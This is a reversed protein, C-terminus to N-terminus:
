IEFFKRYILLLSYLDAKSIVEFPSHMSAVAVGIDVTEFGMNGMFEAVTGGGGADVAGLEAAQFPASSQELVGTIFSMMEASADNAGSKGRAGTYKCLVAGRGLFASNQKDFASAFRADYAAAVDGSIVHSKDVMCLYDTETKSCLSGLINKLFDGALGAPGVSGIEEKDAFMVISTKENCQSEVLAQLAAFSCSRDDHGYGGILARDFGVDRPPLAPVIELEARLFDHETIGYEAHLLRMVALKVAEGDEHEMDPLNAIIVNLEEGKLVDPLKRENQEKALHPLLDCVTFVPDDESLGVSLEVRTGDKRYIAGCLALPIAAWQYKKIGGYYHTKFYAANDQQVLPKPKLDLRPADIHTAIIRVGESLPASGINIAALGKEKCKIFFRAGPTLAVDGSYHKYGESLLFRETTAACMRETFSGKLFDAYDAAFKRISEANNQLFEKDIEGEIFLDKKLAKLVDKDSM